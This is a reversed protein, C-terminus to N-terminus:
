VTLAAMLNQAVYFYSSLVNFSPIFLVAFIYIFFVRISLSSSQFPGCNRNKFVQLGLLKEFAM